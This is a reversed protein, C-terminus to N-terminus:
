LSLATKITGHGSADFGLDNFWQKFSDSLTSAIFNRGFETLTKPRDQYLTRILSDVEKLPMGYPFNDKQTFSPAAAWAILNKVKYGRHRSMYHIVIAGGM